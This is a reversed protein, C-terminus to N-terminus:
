EEKLLHREFLEATPYEGVAETHAKWRGVLDKWDNIRYSIKSVWTPCVERQAIHVLMHNRTVRDTRFKWSISGILTEIDCLWLVSQYGFPKFIRLWLGIIELFTIDPTKKPMDMAGNGKSNWAWLLLHKLHAKFVKRLFPTQGRGKLAAWCLIPILQDRSFRDSQGWWKSKDPHRIPINNSDDFYYPIKYIEESGLAALNFFIAASDGMDLSGDEQRTGPLGLNDICDSPLM